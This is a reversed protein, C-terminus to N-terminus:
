TKMKGIGVKPVNKQVKEKVNKEKFIEYGLDESFKHSYYWKEDM